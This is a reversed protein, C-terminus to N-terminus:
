DPAAVPLAVIDIFTLLIFRGANALVPDDVPEASNQGGVAPMEQRGALSDHGFALEIRCHKERFKLQRERLEQGGGIVPSLLRAMGFRGRPRAMPASM